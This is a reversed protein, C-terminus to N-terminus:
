DEATNIQPWRQYCCVKQRAKNHCLYSLNKLETGVKNACLCALEIFNNPESHFYWYQEISFLGFSALCNSTDYSCMLANLVSDYAIM